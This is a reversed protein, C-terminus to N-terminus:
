RPDSGDGGGGDGDAGDAGDPATGRDDPGTIDLPRLWGYWLVVAMTGYGLAWVASGLTDFGVTTLAFNALGPVVIGAVVVLAFGGRSGFGFKM